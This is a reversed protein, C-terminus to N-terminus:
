RQAYITGTHRLCRFTFTDCICFSTSIIRLDRTFTIIKTINTKIQYPIVIFITVKAKDFYAMVALAFQIKILKYRFGKIMKNVSVM